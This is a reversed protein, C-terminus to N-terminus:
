VAGGGVVLERRHGLGDRAVVHASLDDGIEVCAHSGDGLADAIANLTGGVMRLLSDSDEMVVTGDVSRFSGDDGAVVNSLIQPAYDRVCAPVGLSAMISAMGDQAELTRSVGSDVEPVAPAADCVCEGGDPCEGILGLLVNVAGLIEDRGIGAEMVANGSGSVSEEVAEAKRKGPDYYRYGYDRKGDKTYPDLILCCTHILEEQEPTFIWRSGVNKKEWDLLSTGMEESMAAWDACMELIYIVPMKTADQRSDSVLGGSWFEPHHKNSHVHEEVVARMMARYTEPYEEGDKVFRLAQRVLNFKKLKDMDHSLQSPARFYDEAGAGNKALIGYFKAVGAQHDVIRKRCAVTKDKFEASDLMAVMLLEQVQRMSERSEDTQACLARWQAIDMSLGSINKIVRAIDKRCKRCVRIIVYIAHAVTGGSLVARGVSAGTKAGRAAGITATAVSAVGAGGVAGTVGGAVGGVAGGVATGIKSAKRIRRLSEITKKTFKIISKLLRIVASIVQFVDVVVDTFMASEQTEAALMVGMVRNLAKAVPGVTNDEYMSIEGLQADGM